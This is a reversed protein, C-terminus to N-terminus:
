KKEKSKYAENLAEIIITSINDSEPGYMVTNTADSTGFIYDYGKTKGFNTVFRKVESITSDIETNFAEQLDQQEMQIQQQLFKQKQDLQQYLEQAKQDSLSNVKIQFEQAEIQFARSISDRRKMFNDNKIKYRDEIDIKAQYKNIVETRDVFAMKKQNQCSTLGLLMLIVLSIKKM